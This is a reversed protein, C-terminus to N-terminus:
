FSNLNQMMVLDIDITFLVKSVNQLLSVYNGCEVDLSVVMHHFNTRLIDLSEIEQDLTHINVYLGQSAIFRTLLWNDLNFFM